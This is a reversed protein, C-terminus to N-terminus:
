KYTFTYKGAATPTGIGNQAVIQVATKKKIKLQVVETTAEVFGTSSGLVSGSADLVCLDWDGQFGTLEVKLTGAAPVTFPEVHEGGPLDQTCAGTANPTPDPSAAAAFTKTIPAPKKKPAGFSPSAAVGLAVAPVLVLALRRNM